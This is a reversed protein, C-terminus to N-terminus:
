SEINYLATPYKASVAGYLDETNNNNSTTTANINNPNSNVWM